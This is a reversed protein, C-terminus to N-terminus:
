ERTQLRAALATIPALAGRVLVRLSHSARLPAAFRSGYAYYARVLARGPTHSMLYRDRLRRLARVESALETGYAATAIFCPTVTAFTRDTTTIQAVSIPGSRNLRDTARVAVYYHTRAVLNGIESEVLSGPSADVPLVLSVAGEADETATKAPRGDRIFSEADVIPSTSVRAEYRHLPERSEAARLRVTVWEHSHFVDPHRQLRLGRVPGVPGDVPSDDGVLIVTGNEDPQSPAEDGGGPQETGPEPEPDTADPPGGEDPDPEDDGAPDEDPFDPVTDDDPDPEALDGLTTVRLTLRQGDANLVLRDAGSGAANDPDDSIGTMAQLAGYDPGFFEWSARGEPRATAAVSEGPEALEFPLAFAISPQGRYPYGYDLAWSDWGASPQTPTPYGAPDFSANHDGEVNVELWLAYSGRPWDSPLSFLLSQESYGPPTAMSVADIEPMVERAHDAYLAVDEHDFCTSATCRAVDMRPPYLSDLALPAFSGIGGPDQWPEAYGLATDDPTIFRGKDSMFVSACSVADLADRTTTNRDFSLCFYDDVSQDNSTRSALGEQTRDQFIVRRFPQAGPAAARRAAWIPLVGERRGYPWRYGSNMQSAGPRNGIGRYAVAETLALTRIFRGDASELWVAMQARPAPTFKLELLAGPMDQANAGVAVSWLAVIAAFRRLVEM